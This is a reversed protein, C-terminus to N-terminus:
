GNRETTPPANYFWLLFETTHASPLPTARNNPTDSTAHRAAATQGPWPQALATSSGAPCGPRHPSPPTHADDDRQSYRPDSRCTTPTVAHAVAPCIGTPTTVPRTPQVPAARVNRVSSRDSPSATIFGVPQPPEAERVPPVPRWPRSSTTTSEASTSSSTLAIDGLDQRRYTRPEVAFASSAGHQTTGHGRRCAGPVGPHHRALPAQLTHHRKPEVWVCSGAQRAM